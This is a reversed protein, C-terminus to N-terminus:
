RPSELVLKGGLLLLRWDCYNRLIAGNQHMFQPARHLAVGGPQRRLHRHGHPAGVRSVIRAKKALMCRPLELHSSPQINSIQEQFVEMRGYRVQESSSRKCARESVAVAFILADETVFLFRACCRFRTTFPLSTLSSPSRYESWSQLTWLHFTIPLSFSM